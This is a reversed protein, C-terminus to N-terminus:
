DGVGESNLVEYLHIEAAPAITHIIGAVFLGHDTMNYNHDRLHVARMRFLDEASAPHLHLPRFFDNASAPPLHLPEDPRLLSEILPHHKRQKAPDVKHYKEFAWVLEHMSPATDLIAVVVGEVRKAEDESCLHKLAKPLQFKYPATEPDGIYPVPQSGPGGGGGWESSPSALWNPSVVDLQIGNKLLDDHNRQADLSKILDSLTPENVYGSPDKM